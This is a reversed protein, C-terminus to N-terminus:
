YSFPYSKFIEKTVRELKFDSKKKPKKERGLLPQIVTKLGRSNVRMINRKKELKKQRREGKVEYEHEEEWNRSM